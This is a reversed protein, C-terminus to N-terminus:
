KRGLSLVCWFTLESARRKEMGGCVSRVKKRRAGALAFDFNWPTVFATASAFDELTATLANIM